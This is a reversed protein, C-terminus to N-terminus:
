EDVLIVECFEPQFIDTIKEKLLIVFHPTPTDFIIVLRHGQAIKNKFGMIKKCLWEEFIYQRIDNMNSPTLNNTKFWSNVDVVYIESKDDVQVSKAKDLKNIIFSKFYM